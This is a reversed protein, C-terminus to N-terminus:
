TQSSISDIRLTKSQPLGRGSEPTPHNDLAAPPQRLGLRQRAPRCRRPL